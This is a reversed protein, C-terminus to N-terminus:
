GRIVPTKPPQSAISKRPLYFMDNSPLILQLRLPRRKRQARTAIRAQFAPLNSYVPRRGVCYGPFSPLGQQVLLTRAGLVNRGLPDLKAIRPKYEKAPVSPKSSPTPFSIDNPNYRCPSPAHSQHKQRSTFAPANDICSSPPFRKLKAPRNGKHPNTNRTRLLMRDRQQLFWITADRSSTVASDAAKCDDQCLTIEPNISGRYRSRGLPTVPFAARLLSQVERGRRRRGCTRRKSGTRETQPLCGMAKRAGERARGARYRFTVAIPDHGSGDCKARRSRRRSRLTSV